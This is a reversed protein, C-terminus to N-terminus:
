GLVKISHMGPKWYLTKGTAVENIELPNLGVKEEAAAIDRRCYCGLSCNLLFVLASLVVGACPRHQPNTIILFVRNQL